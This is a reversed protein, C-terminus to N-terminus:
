VTVTFVQVQQIHPFAESLYKRIDQVSNPHRSCIAAKTYRAFAQQPSLLKRAEFSGTKYLDAIDFRSTDIHLGACFRLLSALSNCAGYLVTDSPSLARIKEAAAIYATEQANLMAGYARQLAPMSQMDPLRDKRLLMRNVPWGSVSADTELAVLQLLSSGRCRLSAKAALLALSNLSFHWLHAPNINDSCYMDGNELSPVEIYVYGSPGLPRLLSCVYAVPDLVHELVHTSFVYSYVPGSNLSEQRLVGEESWAYGSDKLRPDVNKGKGIGVRGELVDLLARNPSGVDLCTGSRLRSYSGSGLIKEVWSVASEYCVPPRPSEAQWARAYYKWLDQTSPKPTKGVLGCVGCMEYVVYAPTGGGLPMEHRAELFYMERSCLPCPSAAVSM